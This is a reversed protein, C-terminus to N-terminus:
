QMEGPRMPRNETPHKIWHSPWTSPDGFPGWDGSAKAPQKTSEDMWRGQNFWTSPHPIFREETREAKVQEAFRNVSALITQHDSSKLAKEIAKLAALKGVKRPYAQYIALAPNELVPTNISVSEHITGASFKEPPTQQKKGTPGASFKEPPTTELTLLYEDSTRGTIRDRHQRMIFGHEELWALHTRVSRATQCTKIALKEQGPFCYGDENAYSALGMLVLKCAASPLDLEWALSQHKFSLVFTWCCFTGPSWGRM